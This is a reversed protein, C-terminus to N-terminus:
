IPRTLPLSSPSPLPPYFMCQRRSLVIVEAALPWGDVTRNCFPAQNKLDLGSLEGRLSDLHPTLWIHLDDRNFNRGNLLNTARRPDDDYDGLVNIDAPYADVSAAQVSSGGNKKGSSSSSSSTVARGESDFIDLGNLGVFFPDGWNSIVQLM